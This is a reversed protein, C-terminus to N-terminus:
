EKPIDLSITDQVKEIQANTFRPLPMDGEKRRRAVEKGTAKAAEATPKSDRSLYITQSPFAFDTGSEKVLDMVRLLLDEQIELFHDYSEARVYSFVWIDISHSNLSELRVRAPTNSVDEHAYLLKRIEVLLFRIQDPTTEYRLNLRTDLRFEDRLTYNEIQSSAFAGNPITVVTRDLTRLRTSRIGIDEVTGMVDGFKCFDGVRVPKDAVVTISGVLNEITKQAGLALAIGGIGLAALGTTVDVGLTNLISIAIVGIVLTKGMRRALMVVAVSNLRNTRSMGFRAIDALGDVIRVGLWGVSVLSLIIAIWNIYDRAVVEIGMYIVSYRYISVGIVVGLPVVIAALVGRGPIHARSELPKRLLGTIVRSIVIGVALSVFLALVIAIWHGVPVNAIKHEKLTDPLLQNLRGEQTVRLLFGYRNHGDGHFRWIVAGSSNTGKRMIIPVQRNSQDLVGVVDDSAALDDGSKGEPSNSLSTTELFYGDRDLLQKLQRARLQAQSRRQGLNTASMDFFEAARVYNDEAIARLYGEVSSRPTGRGYEDVPAAAAAPAPAAPALQAHSSAPLLTHLAFLAAVLLGLR